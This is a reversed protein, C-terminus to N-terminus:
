IIQGRNQKPRPRADPGFSCVIFSCDNGNHKRGFDVQTIKVGVLHHIQHNQNRKCFNYLTERM